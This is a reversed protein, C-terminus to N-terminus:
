KPAAAAEGKARAIGETMAYDIGKL